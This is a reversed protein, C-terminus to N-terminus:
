GLASCDTHKSNIIDTKLVIEATFNRDLRELIASKANPSLVARDHDIVIHRSIYGDLRYAVVSEANQCTFIDLYVAVEAAREVDIGAAVISKSHRRAPEAAAAM